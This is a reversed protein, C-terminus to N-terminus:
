LQHLVNWAIRWAEHNIMVARSRNIADISYRVDPKFKFLDWNIATDPKYGLSMAKNKLIEIEHTWKPKEYKEIFCKLVKETFQLSHWASLSPNEPANTLLNCSITIDSNASTLKESKMKRILHSVTLCIEMLPALLAEADSTMRERSFKPLNHICDVANLIGKGFTGKSALVLHSGIALPAKCQFVNGDIEIPFIGQTFDVKLSDGYNNEYWKVVHLYLNDNTVPFTLELNSKGTIQGSLKHKKLINITAILFRWQIPKKEQSLEENVKLILEEFDEKNIRL